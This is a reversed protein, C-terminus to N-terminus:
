RSEPHRYPRRGRHGCPSCQSEAQTRACEHSHFRTILSEACGLRLSARTRLPRAPSHLSPPLSPIDSDDPFRQAPPPWWEYVFVVDPPTEDLARHRPCSFLLPCKGVPPTHSTVALVVPSIRVSLVSRRSAVTKERTEMHKKMKKSRRREREERRKQTKATIEQHDRCLNHFAATQTLRTSNLQM